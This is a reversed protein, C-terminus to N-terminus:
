TTGEENKQRKEVKQKVQDGVKVDEHWKKAGLFVSLRASPLIHFTDAVCVKNGVLSVKVEAKVYEITEIEAHTDPEVIVEYGYICFVMNKKVGDSEGVDLVVSDSSLIKVVRCSIPKRLRELEATTYTM